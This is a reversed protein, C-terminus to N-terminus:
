QAPTVTATVTTTAEPTSTPPMPTATAEILRGEKRTWVMHIVQGPKGFPTYSKGDIKVNVHGANGVVLELTKTATWSAHTGPPLTSAQKTEGDAVVQIWSRDDVVDVELVMPPPTATPTSTPTATPSPTPTPPIPTATPELTPSAMAISATAKSHSPIGLHKLHISPLNVKEIHPPVIRETKILWWGGVALVALLLILGTLTKSGRRFSDRLRVDVPGKGFIEEDTGMHIESEEEPTTLSKFMGVMENVDLGLFAAYNRLFGKATVLDPLSAFDEDELARLYKPRIRIEASVQELTLKRAERAARLRSGLNLESM